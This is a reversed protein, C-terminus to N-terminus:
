FVVLSRASFTSFEHEVEQFGRRQEERRVNFQEKWRTMARTRNGVERKHDPNLEMIIDRARIQRCDYIMM